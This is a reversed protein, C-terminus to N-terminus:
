SPILCLQFHFYQCDLYCCHLYVAGYLLWYIYFVWCWIFIGRSVVATVHFRERCHLLEGQISFWMDWKLCGAVLWDALLFELKWYDENLIRWQPVHAYCINKWYVYVLYLLVTVRIEFIQSSEVWRMCKTFCKTRDCWTRMRDCSEGGLTAEVSPRIWNWAWISSWSSPPSSPPWGARNSVVIRKEEKYKRFLYVSVNNM